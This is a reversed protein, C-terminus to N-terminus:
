RISTTSQSRDQKGDSNEGARKFIFKTKPRNNLQWGDPGRQTLGSKAM